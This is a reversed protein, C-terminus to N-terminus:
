ELSNLLKENIVIKNSNFLYKEFLSLISSNYSNNIKNSITSLSLFRATDKKSVKKINKLIGITYVKNIDDYVPKTFTNVKKLSFLEDIFTSPYYLNNKYIIENKNLKLGKKLAFREINKSNQMEKIYENLISIIRDNRKKDIIKKIINKKSDKLSLFKSQIIDEVYFVKYKNNEKYILDSFIGSKYELIDENFDEPINKMNPTYTFTEKKTNFQKAIEDINKASLILDELQSLKNKAVDNEYSNLDVEIYSIIKQEPVFFENKNEEYYKNIEKETPVKVKFKIDNPIITYVDAVIYKNMINSILTNIYNNNIDKINLLGFLTNRSNSSSLYKIYEKEKLNNKSLIDNFLNLNFNGNKDKFIQNNYIDEMVAEEPENLGLNSIELDILNDLIFDKLLSIKFTNSNLYNIQSNTLNLEYLQSRKNNFFTIFNNINLSNKNIKAISTEGVGGFFGIVGALIFSLALLALLTRVFFNKCNVTM